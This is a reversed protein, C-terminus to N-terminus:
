TVEESTEALRLVSRQLKQDSSTKSYFGSSIDSFGISYTDEVPRGWRVAARASNIWASFGYVANINRDKEPTGGNNLFSDFLNDGRRM